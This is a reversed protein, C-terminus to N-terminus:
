PSHASISLLQWNNPVHNPIFIKNKFLLQASMNKTVAAVWCSGVIMGRNNASKEGIMGAFKIFKKGNGTSNPAASGGVASSGMTTPM